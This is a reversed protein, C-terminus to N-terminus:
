IHILSLEYDVFSPIPLCNKGIKSAELGVWTILESAGNGPLIWDPNINHFEGIIEKLDHFSKDPYYRYEDNKIEEYLAKILFKPPRFPVMSASSDIIKKIPINNTKAHLHINGGHKFTFDEM